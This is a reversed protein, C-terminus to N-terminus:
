NPAGPVPALPLKAPPTFVAVVLPLPRAVDTVTVSFLAAPTGYVTVALTAPTAVGASKESVFVAPAAALMVAVLPVGCLAVILVANAAGSTAVTFSAPPLGTAPTVTVNLAGPVPALPLKAPPTFVAVVSRFLTTYPFLTFALLPAPPGFVPAALTAPTALGAVDYTIFAHPATLLIITLHPVGCLAVILVANAAGSTAVTFSAPPLGTALTVTVNVAGPVPGLPLKAPPTFVAVVLPLPLDSSPRTPFFLTAPPGYVTDALSAPTAVGAFKESVFVAPAAALMVAVLPVGCPAVILVANAAGSTAVTFSAPPLGTAPTVTVNPAGPVPGLPLKAPPTFVAVVLPLPTAVVAAMVDLLTAPPGYVTVALTAPTAVGASKESVFVAPAAALM